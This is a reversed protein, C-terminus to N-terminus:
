AGLEVTGSVLLAEELGLGVAWAQRCCLRPVRCM